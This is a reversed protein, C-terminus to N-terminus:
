RREIITQLPFASAAADPIKWHHAQFEVGSPSM